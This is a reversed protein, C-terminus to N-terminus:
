FYGSGLKMYKGGTVLCGWGARSIDTTNTCTLPSCVTLTTLLTQSFLGVRILVYSKYGVM